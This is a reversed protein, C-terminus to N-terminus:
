KRVFLLVLAAMLALMVVIVAVIGATGLGTDQQSPVSAQVTRPALVSFTGTMGDIAVQYTGPVARSVKFVVQQCSGGSVGVSQSQEAVGNVMLSVTKSGREEGQNCVNASVMVEQNPLVQVPDILLYSTGMDAPALEDEDEPETRVTILSKRSATDSYGCADGVTLTVTFVGATEYRHVPNQETSTDGDGFDWLWEVVECGTTSADTFQVSVGVVGNRPSATFAAKLNSPSCTQTMWPQYEVGDSVYDGLGDPNTAPHQPGTVDGWWNVTGSISELGDNLVGWDSNGDINNNNIHVMGLESGLIHIGGANREVKNCGSIDVLAHRINSEIGWGLNVSMINGLVSAESDALTDEVGCLWLGIDSNGSIDNDEVTLKGGLSMYQVNVGCTNGSVVNGRIVAEAGDQIDYIFLGDSSNDELRNDLIALYSGYGTGSSCDFGIDGNGIFANDQVTLVCGYDVEQVYVGDGEAGTVLNGSIVGQCGEYYGRVDFGGAEGGTAENDLLDLRSGHYVVGVACAHDTNDTFTNDKITVRCGENVNHSLCLGYGENGTLTNGEILAQSGEQCDYLYFGYSGNTAVQNDLLALYCGYELTSIDVGYGQNEEITNEQVTLTCGYTVGEVFYLGDNGNNKLTNGSIFGEGGDYLGYISVGYSGNDSIDNDVLALYGGSSVYEDEQYYGGDPNGTITNQEVILRGSELVGSYIWIGLGNGTIVNERITGTSHGIFEYAYIGAVNNDRIENDILDLTSCGELDDFDFGYSSNANITNGQVLGSSHNYVDYWYIGDAGNDNIENDVIAVASHNAVAGADDPYLYVGYSANGTITNGRVDASSFDRVAALDVGNEGNNTIENDLIFLSSFCSVGSGSTNIGDGSCGDIINGQVTVQSWSEVDIYFGEPGGTVTFGANVGGFVITAQDYDVDLNAKGEITTVGAGGTSKVTLSDYIALDETYTGPSVLIVDGRDAADIADQISAFDAGGSDDVTITAPEAVEPVYTACLDPEEDLWDAYDVDDSVDDGLGGPNTTGHYPGSDDGWWNETADLDDGDGNQLGWDTNGAISNEHIGVPGFYDGSVYIGGNDSGSGNGSIDNGSMDVVSHYIYASIGWETNGSITNCRVTTKSDALAAGLDGTDECLQLGIGTNDVISNALVRVECTTVQGGCSIGGDTNGTVDNDEFDLLSGNEAWDVYIGHANGSVTNDTIICESGQTVGGVRVGDDDNDKVTNNLVGLYAGYGLSGVYLGFEDNGSLRNGQVTFISGYESYHYEDDIYVGSGGNGTVVNHRFLCESGDWVDDIYVGDGLNDTIDNDVLSVVAGDYVGQGLYLGCGANGRIDNSELMLRGGADIYALCIGDDDAGEGNGSITNEEIRAESLNGVDSLYVGERNGSIENDLLDLQSRDDVGGIYVGYDTNGSITNDEVTFSSGSMVEGCVYMGDGNGTVTNGRVLGESGQYLYEVYLGDDSNDSFKNDLVALYAGNRVEYTYFGYATNGTITNGEVTLRAGDDLGQSVGIGSAGNGTITNGEILGKALESLSDLYIGDESNDCFENDLIDLSCRNDIPGCYVGAGSTSNATNGELLFHSSDRLDSCYVGYGQCNSITNNVISVSSLYRVAGDYFYMASSWNPDFTNGRITLDSSYRVANVDVGYDCGNFTNGEIILSSWYEVTADVGDSANNVTFGAGAGGFVVSEQDMLTITVGNTAVCDIITTAAGDSSVLTLSKDITLDGEYTGPHVVIIDGPAAGDIADQISDGSYVDYEVPDAAVTGAAPPVLVGLSLVLSLMLLISAVRQAKLM